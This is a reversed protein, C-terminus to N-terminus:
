RRGFRAEIIDPGAIDKPLRFSRVGPTSPISYNPYAAKKLAELSPISPSFISNVPVTEKYLNPGSSQRRTLQEATLQRPEVIARSGDKTLGVLRKEQPERGTAITVISGAKPNYLPNAMSYKFLGDKKLDAQNFLKIDKIDAIDGGGGGGGAKKKQSAEEQNKKVIGGNGTQRHGILITTM